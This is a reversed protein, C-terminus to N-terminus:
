YTTCDDFIAILGGKEKKCGRMAEKLEQAESEKSLGRV